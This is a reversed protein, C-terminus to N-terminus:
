DGLGHGRKMRGRGGSRKRRGGARSSKRGLVDEGVKVGSIKKKM